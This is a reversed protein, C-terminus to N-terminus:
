DIEELFAKIDRESAKAALEESINVCHLAPFVQSDPFVKRIVAASLSVKQIDDEDISYSSYPVVSRM